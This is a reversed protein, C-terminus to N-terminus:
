QGSIVPGELVMALTIHRLGLFIIINDPWRHEVNGQVHYLKFVVYCLQLTEGDIGPTDGQDGCTRLCKHGGKSGAPLPRYLDPSSVPVAYTLQPHQPQLLGFNKQPTHPPM